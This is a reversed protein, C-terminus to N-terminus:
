DSPLALTDPADPDLEKRLALMQATERSVIVRTLLRSRLRGVEEVFPHAKEIAYRHIHSQSRLSAGIMQESAEAYIEKIISNYRAELEEFEPTLLYEIQIDSQETM